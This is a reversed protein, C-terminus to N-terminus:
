LHATTSHTQTYPCQTFGRKFAGPNDQGRGLCRPCPLMSDRMEEKSVYQERSHGVDVATAIGPTASSETWEGLFQHIKPMLEDRMKDEWPKNWENGNPGARCDFFLTHREFGPMADPWWKNFDTINYGPMPVGIVQSGQRELEAFRSCLKRCQSISDDLLVLVVQAKGHYPMQPSFIKKSVNFKSLHSDDLHMFLM